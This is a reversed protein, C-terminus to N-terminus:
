RRKPGESQKQPQQSSAPVKAYPVIWPRRLPWEFDIAVILVKIVGDEGAVQAILKRRDARNGGSVLFMFKKEQARTQQVPFFSPAIKGTNHFSIGNQRM